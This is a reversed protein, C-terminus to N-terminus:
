VRKTSLYLGIFVFLAGFLDYGHVTEGLFLVALLASFVPLLNLFYGATAPGFTKIGVTWCTFALIAPGIATYLILSWTTMSWLIVSGQSSEFLYVPFLFVLSMFATLWLFVFASLTDPIKKILLSYGAWALASAFALLDGVNLPLQFFLWPRGGSVLTIVGVFSVLVGMMNLFSLREQQFCAAFLVILAPIIAHILSLHIVSTYALAKYMLLTFLVIGLLSLMMMLFWHARFIEWQVKLRRYVWPFLLVVVMLWRYFALGFPGIHGQALFAAVSNGAWLLPALVLFAYYRTVSSTDAGKCKKM